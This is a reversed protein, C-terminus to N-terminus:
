DADDDLRIALKWSPLSESSRKQYMEDVFEVFEPAVLRRGEHQWWHQGGQTELVSFITHYLSRFVSENLLGQKWQFYENQRAVFMATLFFDMLLANHPDLSEDTALKQLATAMDQGQVLMHAHEQVNRTVDSIAQGRIAKTNADFAKKSHEFAEKSHRVQVALYALTIVVALAGIIEAIAAWDGLSM